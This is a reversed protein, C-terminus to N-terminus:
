LVATIDYWYMVLPGPVKVSQNVVAATSIPISLMVGINLWVSNQSLKM